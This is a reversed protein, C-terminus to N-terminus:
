YGGGGFLHDQQTLGYGFVIDAWGTKGEWPNILWRNEAKRSKKIKGSTVVTGDTYKVTANSSAIKITGTQTDVWPEDGVGLNENTYTITFNGYKDIEIEGFGYLPSQNTFDLWSWTGVIDQQTVPDDFLDEISCSSFLVAIFSLCIIYFRKM